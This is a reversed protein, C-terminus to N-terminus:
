VIAAYAPILPDLEDLGYTITRGDFSATLENDDLDVDDIYGIDGNYVEKDHDNEIQMV